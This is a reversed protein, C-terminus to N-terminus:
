VCAGGRIGINALVEASHAGFDAEDKTYQVCLGGDARHVLTLTPPWRKALAHLASIAQDHTYPKPTPMHTRGRKM